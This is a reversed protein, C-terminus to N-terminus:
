MKKGPVNQGGKKKLIEEEEAQIEADVQAGKSPKNGHMKAPLTPDKKQLTTERSEQPSSAQKEAAARDALSRQDKPDNNRHSHATGEHYRTGSGAETAKPNRQDGAEYLQRNGVNSNGSM